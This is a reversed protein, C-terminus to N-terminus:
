VLDGKKKVITYEVSFGLVNLYSEITTIRPSSLCKHDELRSINPRQTSLATAMQKQTRGASKRLMSLAARMEEISACRLANEASENDTSVSDNLAM